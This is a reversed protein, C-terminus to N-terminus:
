SAIRTFERKHGTTYGSIKLCTPVVLSTVQNLEIPIRIETQNETGIHLKIQNKSGIHLFIYTVIIIILSLSIFKKDCIIPVDVRHAPVCLM